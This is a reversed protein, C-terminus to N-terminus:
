ALACPGCSVATTFRRKDSAPTSIAFGPRWRDRGGRAAGLCAEWAPSRRWGCRCRPDARRRPSSRRSTPRTRRGADAPHRPGSWASGASSGAPTTPSRRGHPILRAQGDIRRRRTGNANLATGAQGERLTLGWAEQVRDIIESSYRTIVRNAITQAELFASRETVDVYNGLPKYGQFRVTSIGKRGMMVLDSEIGQAAYANVRDLARRVINSNFAGCMGRDATLAIVAVRRVEGHKKLLPYQTADVELYRVLQTSILEKM